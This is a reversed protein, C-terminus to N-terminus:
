LPIYNNIVAIDFFVGNLLMSVSMYKGKANDSITEDLHTNIIELLELRSKIFSQYDTYKSSAIDLFPKDPIDDFRVEEEWEGYDTMRDTLTEVLKRTLSFIAAYRKKSFENESNDIFTTAAAKFEPYQNRYIQYLQECAKEPNNPIPPYQALLERYKCEPKEDSESVKGTENLLQLKDGITNMNNRRKIEIKDIAHKIDKDM